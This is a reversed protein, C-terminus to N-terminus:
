MRSSEYSPISGDTHVITALAGRQGARRLRVIEEFIDMARQTVCVELQAYPPQSASDIAAACHSTVPPSHRPVGSSCTDVLSHRRAFTKQSPFTATVRGGPHKKSTNIRFSKLDKNGSTNIRSSKLDKSGSTNIRTSKLNIRILSICSKKLIKYTNIRRSIIDNLILVEPCKQFEHNPASDLSIPAHPSIRHDCSM